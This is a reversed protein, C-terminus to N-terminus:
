HQKDQESLSSISPVPHTKVKTTSRIHHNDIEQNATNRNWGIRQWSEDDSRHHHQHHQQRRASGEIQVKLYQLKNVLSIQGEEGKEQSQQTEGSWWSAQLSPSCPAPRGANWHQLQALLPSLLGSSPAPPSHQRSASRLDTMSDRGITVSLM